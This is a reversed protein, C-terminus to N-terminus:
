TSAQRRLASCQWQTASVAWLNELAVGAYFNAPQHRQLVGGANRMLANVAHNEAACLLTLESRGTFIFAHETVAAFAESIYRKGWYAQGLWFSWHDEDDHPFVNIQGIGQHNAKLRIAWSLVQGSDMKQCLQALMEAVGDAPYPNPHDTGVWQLVEPDAFLPQAWLHDEVKLPTLILRSTLLNPVAAVTTTM